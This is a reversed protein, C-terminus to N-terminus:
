FRIIQKLLIKGFVTAPQSSSGSRPFLLLVPSAPDGEVSVERMQYQVNRQVSM